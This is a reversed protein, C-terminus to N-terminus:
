NENVTVHSGGAKIQWLGNFDADVVNNGELNVTYTGSTGDISVAAVPIGNWTMATATANFTCDKVTVTQALNTGDQYVLIARGDTNFTCGNFVASSAGGVRLYENTINFVCNNFANVSNAALNYTNQIVCNNYTGSMRAYGAYLNSNTKITVNNFTVTSGDLNYDLQGNAEGQGAPVVEIVTGEAGNIVLTKGKAAAPMHFSGADLWLETEGAAIANKLAADDAIVAPVNGENNLVEFAFRASHMNDAQIAAAEVKINLGEFMALQERNLAAPVLIQEFPTFSDGQNELYLYYTFVITDAAVDYEFWNGEAAKGQAAADVKLLKADVATDVTYLDGYVLDWGAFIQDLMAQNKVVDQIQALNNVTVTMAVYAPNEHTNTVTPVKILKDGPMINTYDGGAVAGTTTDRESVEARGETDVVEDLSISIDGVTFTNEVPAAEHTLYAVTIGVSLVVLLVAAMVLSMIKTFKKM